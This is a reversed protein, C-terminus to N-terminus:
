HQQRMMLNKVMDIGVVILNHHKNLNKKQKMIKLLKMPLKWYQKNYIQGYGPLVASVLCVKSLSTSDGFWPEPPIINGESDIRGAAEARQRRREVRALSDMRRKIEKATPQFRALSDAIARSLSDQAVITTDPKQMVGSDVKQKLGRRMDQASLTGISVFLVIACALMTLWRHKATNYTQIKGIVSITQKTRTASAHLISSSTAM